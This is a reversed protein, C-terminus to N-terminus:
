NNRRFMIEYNTIDDKLAFEYNSYSQKMYSLTVKSLDESMKSSLYFIGEQSESIVKDMFEKDFGELYFKNAQKQTLDEVLNM